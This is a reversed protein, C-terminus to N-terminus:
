HWTHTYEEYTASHAVGSDDPNILTIYRRLAYGGALYGGTIRTKQFNIEYTKANSIVENELWGANKVMDPKYLFEISFVSKKGGDPRTSTIKVPLYGAMTYGWEVRDGFVPVFSLNNNYNEPTWVMRKVEEPNKKWSKGSDTRLFTEKKCLIVYDGCFGFNSYNVKKGM